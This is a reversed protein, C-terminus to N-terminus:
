DNDQKAQEAYELYYDGWWKVWYKVQSEGYFALFWDAYGADVYVYQRSTDPLIALEQQLSADIEADTLGSFDVRQAQEICNEQANIANASFFVVVCILLYRIM